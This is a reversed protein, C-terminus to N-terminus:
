APFSATWRSFTRLTASRLTASALRARRAPLHAYNSLAGLLAPFVRGWFLARRSVASMQARGVGVKGSKFIDTAAAWAQQRCEKPELGKTLCPSVAFLFPLVLNSLPM